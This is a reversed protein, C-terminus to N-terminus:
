GRIWYKQTLSTWADLTVVPLPLVIRVRYEPQMWVDRDGHFVLELRTAERPPATFDYAGEMVNGDQSVGCAGGLDMYETGVDDHASVWAGWGPEWTAAEPLKEVGYEFRVVDYMTDCLESFALVAIARISIVRDKLASRITVAQDRDSTWTADMNYGSLLKSAYKVLSAGSGGGNYQRDM